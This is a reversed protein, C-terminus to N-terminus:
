FLTIALQNYELGFTVFIADAQKSDECAELLASNILDQLFNTNM